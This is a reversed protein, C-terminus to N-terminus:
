SRALAAVASLCFSDRQRPELGAARRLAGSLLPDPCREAVSVWGPDASTAPDSIPGALVGRVAALDAFGANAHATSLPVAALPCVAYAQWFDAGGVSTDADLLRQSTMLAETATHIEIM